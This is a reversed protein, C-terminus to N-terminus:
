KLTYQIHKLTYACIYIIIIEDFFNYVPLPYLLIDDYDFLNIKVAWFEGVLDSVKFLIVNFFQQEYQTETGPTTSKKIILSIIYLLFSFEKVINFMMNIM